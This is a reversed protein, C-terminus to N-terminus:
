NEKWKRIIFGKAWGKEGWTSVDVPKKKSLFPDHDIRRLYPRSNVSTSCIGLEKKAKL